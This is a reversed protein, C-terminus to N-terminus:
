WSLLIFNNAEQFIIELCLLELDNSKIKVEPDSLTYRVYTAAGGRHINRDNWYIQYGPIHVEKDEINEDLRTENLALTDIKHYNIDIELEHRHKRQSVINLSAIMLGTMQWESIQILLM